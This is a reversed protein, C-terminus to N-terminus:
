ASPSPDVPGPNSGRPRRALDALEFWAWQFRQKDLGRKGESDRPWDEQAAALAEVPHTSPELALVIKRHMMVYEEHDIIEDNANFNAAKWLEEMAEKVIPHKMLRVRQKVSDESYFYNWKTLGGAEGVAVVGHQFRELKGASPESRLSLERASGDQRLSLERMSTALEFERESSRRELVHIAPSLQRASRPNSLKSPSGKADLDSGGPPDFPVELPEEVELVTM